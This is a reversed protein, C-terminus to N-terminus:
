KKAKKLARRVERATVLGHRVAIKLLKALSNANAHLSYTGIDSEIKYSVNMRLRKPHSM